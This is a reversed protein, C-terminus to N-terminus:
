FLHLQLMDPPQGFVFKVPEANTLWIPGIKLHIQPSNPLHGPLNRTFPTLRHSLGFTNSQIPVM